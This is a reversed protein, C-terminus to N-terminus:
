SSQRVYFTSLTLPLTGITARQLYYVRYTVGVLVPNSFSVTVNGLYFGTGTPTHGIVRIAFTSGSGYFIEEDKDNVLRFLDTIPQSGDGFWIPTTTGDLVISTDGASVTDASVAMVTVETNLQSSLASLIPAVGAGEVYLHASASAVDAPLKGYGFPFNVLELSSPM